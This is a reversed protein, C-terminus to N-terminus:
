SGIGEEYHRRETRTAPRAGIIRIREGRECHSVLVMEKETYGLTVERASTVLITLTRTRSRLRDFFV